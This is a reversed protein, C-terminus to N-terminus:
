QRVRTPTATGAGALASTTAPEKQNAIQLFLIKSDTIQRIVQKASDKSYGIVILHNFLDMIAFDIRDVLATYYKNESSQINQRTKIAQITSNNIM